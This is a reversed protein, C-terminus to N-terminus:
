NINSVTEASSVTGTIASIVKSFQTFPAETVYVLDGDRILFEGGSFFSQPDKMNLVYVVLASDSTHGNVELNKLTSANERRFIFVGSPNSTSANLGGFYGIAEIVSVDVDNFPIVSQAGLSGLAIFKRSDEEIVIRDGPRLAIDNSPEDFLDNAWIISEKADRHVVIRAVEPEISLGGAQAILGSLKRNSPEMPYVGQAAVAGLISIAFNKGLERRVIVQPNPTQVILKRTIMQRLGETTHDTARINGIYPLFVNGSGAVQIEVLEAPAGNLSLIGDDVNEYVSITLTDGPWVLDSNIPKASLFVSPISSSRHRKTAIAVDMTIPVIIAESDEKTGYSIVEQHNPGVSPLGCASLLLIGLSMLYKYM